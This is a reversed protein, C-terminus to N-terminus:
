TLLVDDPVPVESYSRAMQTYLESRRRSTTTVLRAEKYLRHNARAATHSAATHLQLEFTIGSQDTIMTNRGRYGDRQWGVPNKVVRMGSREIDALIADGTAWYNEDDLIVAYRVVDRIQRAAEDYTVAKEASDSLIKRAISVVDKLRKDFKVFTGREGVVKQMTKSIAPEATVYPAIKLTALSMRLDLDHANHQSIDANIM